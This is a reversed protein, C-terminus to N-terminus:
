LLSLVYEKALDKKETNAVIYIGMEDSALIDAFQSNETIRIGCPEGMEGTPQGTEDTKEYSILKDEGIEELEEATFAESLPLFSGNNALNQVSQEDCLMVDLEKATIMASIKMMSTTGMMNATNDETGSVVMMGTASLHEGNSLTVTDAYESLAVDDVYPGAVAMKLTNEDDSSGCGGLVGTLCIAAALIM